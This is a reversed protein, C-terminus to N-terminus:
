TVTSFAQSQPHHYSRKLLAVEQNVFAPASSDQNKINCKIRPKCINVIDRSEQSSRKIITKTVKTRQMLAAEIKCKDSTVKTPTRLDPLDMVEASANPLRLAKGIGVMQKNKKISM